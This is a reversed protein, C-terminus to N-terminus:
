GLMSDRCRVQSVGMIGWVRGGRWHRRSSTDDSLECPKEPVLVLPKTSRFTPLSATPFLIASQRTPKPSHSPTIVETSPSLRGSTLKGPLHYAQKHSHKFLDHSTANEAQLNNVRRVKVTAIADRSLSMSVTWGEGGIEAEDDRRSSAYSAYLFLRSMSTSGASAFFVSRLISLRM